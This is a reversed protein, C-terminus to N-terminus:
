YGRWIEVNIIHRNGDNTKYKSPVFLKTIFWYRITAQANIKIYSNCSNLQFDTKSQQVNLQILDEIRNMKVEKDKVLLLLRLYDHYDFDMLGDEPQTDDREKFGTPLLDTKWNGANKIFPVRKGNYIEEIDYFAEATGWACMILNHVIPIGFGTVGALTTALELAQLRKQADSYVHLTNMGFRILLIQGRVLYKNAKEDTNGGIIYEVEGKEFFTTSSKGDTNADNIEVTDKFIKLIYENVYIEDRMDLAKRKLEEAFNIIYDFGEDVFSSDEDFAADFDQVVGPIEQYPERTDVAGESFIKNPYSGNEYYSPLQEPNEIKKPTSADGQLEKRIKKAAEAVNKRPDKGKTSKHDELIDDLAEYQYATEKIAKLKTSTSLKKVLADFKSQDLIDIHEGEGFSSEINRRAAAKIQIAEDAIWADLEAISKMLYNLVELNSNLSAKLQQSKEGNLLKEYKDIDKQLATIMESNNTKSSEKINELEQLNSKLHEIDQRAYKVLGKINELEQLAAEIAIKCNSLEEKLKEESKKVQEKAKGYLKDIKEELDIADEQEESTELYGLDVGRCEGYIERLLYARCLTMLVSSSSSSCDFDKKEFENIQKIHGQLRSLAKEIKGLSKEIKIKQKYAAAAEKTSAAYEIKEMFSEAFQVPARYKMYEVIQQRTIENETLNYIPTVAINEVNFDYLDIFNVKNYHNNQYIMSPYQILKQAKDMVMVETILQNTLYYEIDKELYISENNHLAFLGFDEKLKSNFGALASAAATNVARRLQVEAARIRVIDMLVGSLLFVASLIISLYITIAGHNKNNM